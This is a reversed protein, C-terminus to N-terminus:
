GLSAAIAPHAVANAALTLLEPETMHPLDAVIERLIRGRLAKRHDHLWAILHDAENSQGKGGHGIVVIDNAGTVVRAIDAFFRQDAPLDEERDSDHEKRGIEQLLHHHEDAVGLQHIRAGKRVIIIVMDPAVPNTKAAAVPATPSWGTRDLFHRLQAVEDSTMDKGHQRVLTLAEDGVRLRLEGNHQTEARGIANFLATVDRLELSHTLPHQYIRTLTSHQPGNLGGALNTAHIAVQPM